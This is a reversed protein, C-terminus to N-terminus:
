PEAIKFDIRIERKAGEGTTALLLAKYTQPAIGSEVALVVQRNDPALIFANVDLGAPTVTVAAAVIEDDDDLFRDYDVTWFRVERPSQERSWRGTAM